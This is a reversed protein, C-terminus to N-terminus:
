ADRNVSLNDILRVDGAQVAIFCRIHASEEWATVPALTFEDAFEVYEVKLLGTQDLTSTIFQKLEAPSSSATKAVAETLTKFILPATKRHEPTLRANRSSMALGDTERIIECPIINSLLKEIDLMRRIIALQQFDKEGFYANDPEIIRLLKSVVIGVGNFHGPRSSGEMVEALPGFNFIRNDPTPYMETVSPVFVFDDNGLIPKLLELDAGINRPYNVLDAHNNFQIPNVFISVAVRNNEHVARRVLSLHGEHLAGMTPVFGITHNLNHITRSYKRVADITELVKM